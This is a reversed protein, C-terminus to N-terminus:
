ALDEAENYAEIFKKKAWNWAQGANNWRGHEHMYHALISIAAAQSSQNKMEESAEVCALVADLTAQMEQPRPWVQQGAAYLAAQMEQSPRPWFRQKTFSEGLSKIKEEDLEFREDPDPVEMFCVPPDDPDLVEHPDGIAGLPTSFPRGTCEVLTRIITAIRSRADAEADEVQEILSRPRDDEMLGADKLKDEAEELRKKLSTYDMKKAM